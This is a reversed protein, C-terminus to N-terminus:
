AVKGQLRMATEYARAAEREEADALIEPDTAWGIAKAREMRWMCTVRAADARSPGKGSLLVAIHHQLASSAKCREGIFRIDGVPATRKRYAFLEADTMADIDVTPAPQAPVDQSLEYAYFQALNWDPGCWGVNAVFYAEPYRTRVQKSISNATTKTM